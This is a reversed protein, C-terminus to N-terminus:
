NNNHNQKQYIEKLLSAARNVNEPYGLQQAMALSKLSYQLAADIKGQRFLIGSINNLSIAIGKKDKIEERIKLGRNYYDLAKLIDGKNKYMFGINHLVTAIGRKDNLEERIKLSKEFYSLATEILKTKQLLSDPNNKAEAQNSYITGINNLSYSIGKKDGM